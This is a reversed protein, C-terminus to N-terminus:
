IRLQIIPVPEYMNTFVRESASTSPLIGDSMKPNSSNANPTTIIILAPRPTPGQVTRATPNASLSGSDRPCTLWNIPNFTITMPQIRSNGGPSAVTKLMYKMPKKMSARNWYLM